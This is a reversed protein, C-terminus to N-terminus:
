PNRVGVRTTWVGTRQGAGPLARNQSNLYQAQLQMTVTRNAPNWSFSTNAGDIFNALIRTGPQVMNGSDVIERILQTGAVRYRLKWSARSVGNEDRAGWCIAGAPCPPPQNYGLAVQFDLQSGAATIQGAERLERVMADFARRAEQQVQIYADASFFSTWGTVFTTLLGMGIIVFIVSVVMLEVLTFGWARPQPSLALPQPSHRPIM